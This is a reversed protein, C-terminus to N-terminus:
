KRGEDLLRTMLTQELVRVTGIAFALSRSAEGTTATGFQRRKLLGVLAVGILEGSKAQDLLESLVQVTDVSPQEGIFSFPRKM